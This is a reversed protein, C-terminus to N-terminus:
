NLVHNFYHTLLIDFRQSNFMQLLVFSINFLLVLLLEHTLVKKGTTIRINQVGRSPDVQYFVVQERTDCSMRRYWFCMVSYSHDDECLIFNFAQIMCYLKKFGKERKKQQIIISFWDYWAFKISRFHRRTKYELIAICRGNKTESCARTQWM